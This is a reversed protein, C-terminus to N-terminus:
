IKVTCGSVFKSANSPIYWQIGIDLTKRQMALNSASDMQDPLGFDKLCHNIYLFRAGLMAETMKVNAM